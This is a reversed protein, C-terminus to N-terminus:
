GPLAHTGAAGNSALARERRIREALPVPEPPAEVGLHDAVLARLYSGVTLGSREAREALPLWWEDPGRFGYSRTEAM